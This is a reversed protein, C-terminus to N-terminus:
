ESIEALRRIAEVFRRGAATVGGADTAPDVRGRAVDWIAKQDSATLQMVWGSWEMWRNTADRLKEDFTRLDPPSEDASTQIRDRATMISAGKANASMGLKLQNYRAESATLRAYVSWLKPADDQHSVIVIARGAPEGIAQARMEGWDGPSKGMLRARKELVTRQPSPDNPQQRTRNVFCKDKGRKRSPALSVEADFATDSKRAKGRKDGRGM